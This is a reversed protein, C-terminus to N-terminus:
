NELKERGDLSHHVFLWGAVASGIPVDSGDAYLDVTVEQPTPGCVCDPAAEHEVLDGIPRVHASGDDV